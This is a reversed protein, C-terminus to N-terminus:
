FSASSDESLGGSFMTLSFFILCGFTFVMILGVITYFATIGNPNRLSKLKSEYSILLWSLNMFIPLFCGFIVFLVIPWSTIYYTLMAVDFATAYLLLSINLNHINRLDENPHGDCTLM